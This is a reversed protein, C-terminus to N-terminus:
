EIKALVEIHPRDDPTGFIRTIEFTVKRGTDIATATQEALKKEIWGIQEDNIMAKIANKDYINKTDRVTQLNEGVRLKGWQESTIPFRTCGTVQGKM